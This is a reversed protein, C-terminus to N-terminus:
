SEWHLGLTVSPFVPLHGRSLEALEPMDEGAAM